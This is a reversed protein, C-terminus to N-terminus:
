YNLHAHHLLVTQCQLIHEKCVAKQGLNKMRTVSDVYKYVTYCTHFVQSLLRVNKNTVDQLLVYSSVSIAQVRRPVVHTRM